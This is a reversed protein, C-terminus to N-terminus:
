VCYPVQDAPALVDERRGSRGATVGRFRVGGLTQRSVGERRNSPTPQRRSRPMGDPRRSSHSRLSDCCHPDWHTRGVATGLQSRTECRGGGVTRLRGAVHQAPRPHRGRRREEDASRFLLEEYLAARVLSIVVAAPLFAVGALELNGLEEGTAWSFIGDGACWLVGLGLGWLLWRALGRRAVFHDALRGREPYLAWFLLLLEVPVYVHKPAGLAPHVFGLQVVVLRIVLAVAVLTM